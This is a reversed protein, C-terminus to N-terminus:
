AGKRVDRIVREIANRFGVTRAHEFMADTVREDDEIATETVHNLVFVNGADLHEPDSAADEVKECVIRFLRAKEQTTLMGDETGNMMLIIYRLFSSCAVGLRLFFDGGSDSM